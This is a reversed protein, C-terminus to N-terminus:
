KEEKNGFMGASCHELCKPYTPFDCMQCLKHEREPHKVEEEKTYIEWHGGTEDEIFENYEVQIKM